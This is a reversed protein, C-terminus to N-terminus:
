PPSAPPTLPPEPPKFPENLFRRPDISTKSRPPSATSIKGAIIDRLIQAQPEGLGAALAKRAFEKGEEERGLITASIVALNYLAEGDQPSVTLLTSLERVVDEFQQLEYYCRALNKRATVNSPERGVVEKFVSIAESFRKQHMLYYGWNIKVEVNDPDKVAAEALPAKARDSICM